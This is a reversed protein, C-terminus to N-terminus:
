WPVSEKTLSIFVLFFFFLSGTYSLDLYPLIHMINWFKPCQTLLIPLEFNVIDLYHTQPLAPSDYFSEQACAYVSLSLSVFLPISLSLLNNTKM